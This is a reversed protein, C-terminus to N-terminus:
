EEVLLIPIQEIPKAKPLRVVLIGHRFEAQALEAKIAVPLVITRSFKGWFCEQYYPEVVEPLPFEREGRITLVDNVLHLELDEVQTGAVAALVIIEQSSELVDVALQGEPAASFHKASAPSVAGTFAVLRGEEAQLPASKLFLSVSNDFM